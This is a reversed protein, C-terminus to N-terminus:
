DCSMSEVGGGTGTDYKSAVEVAQKPSAGMALAGYAVAAGSGIAQPATAIYSRGLYNFCRIVGCPSLVLFESTDADSWPKERDGNYWEVFSSLDFPSGTVGIVSGDNARALKSFTGHRLIGETVLMDAAITEGDTCITTM